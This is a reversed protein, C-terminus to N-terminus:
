EVTIKSNARSGTERTRSMERALNEVMAGNFEEMADFQKRLQAYLLKWLLRKGAVIIPGIIKRHSSIPELYRLGCRSLIALERLRECEKDSLVASAAIFHHPMLAVTETEILSYSAHAALRAQFRRTVEEELAEAVGAPAHLVFNPSM